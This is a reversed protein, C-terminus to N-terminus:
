AIFYLVSLVILLYTSSRPLLVAKSPVQPIIENDKECNSLLKMTIPTCCIGSNEIKPYHLFWGFFRHFIFGLFNKRWTKGFKQRIKNKKFNWQINLASGSQINHYYDLISLIFIPLFHLFTKNLTGEVSKGSSELYRLIQNRTGMRSNVIDGLYWFLM